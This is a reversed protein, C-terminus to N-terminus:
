SYASVQINRYAFCAANPPILKIMMTIDFVSQQQQKQYILLQHTIPSMQLPCPNANSVLEHYKPFLTDNKKHINPYLYPNTVKADYWDRQQQLLGLKM